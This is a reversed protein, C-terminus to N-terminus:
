KVELLANYFMTRGSYNWYTVDQEIFLWKICELILETSHGTKFDFNDNTLTKCNYLNTVQKFLSTYLERDENLKAKLDDIIHGHAPRTTSRKDKIGSNFNTDTVNLTFDFGNNFQAPRRLYVKCGNKLVKTIYDYKSTENGKGTGPKEDLFINIIEKRIESRDNSFKKKTLDIETM